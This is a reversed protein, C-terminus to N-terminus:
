AKLETTNLKYFIHNGIVAYRQYRWRPNVYDAHYFLVNDPFLDPYAGDYLVAAAIQESLAYISKNTVKKNQECTWSFQCIKVRRTTIGENKTVQNQQYVVACADNAFGHQIRNRVVVAVAAMGLEGEGKAEFYINRALCAIQRSRDKIQEPSLVLQTNPAEVVSQNTPPLIAALGIVFVAIAACFMSIAYWRNGFKSLM